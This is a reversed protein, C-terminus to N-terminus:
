KSQCATMSGAKLDWGEVKSHELGMALMQELVAGKVQEWRHAKLCETMAASHRVKRIETMMASGLELEQALTSDLTLVLKLGM